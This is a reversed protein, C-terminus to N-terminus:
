AEGGTAPLEEAKSVPEVPALARVIEEALDLGRLRGAGFHDGEGLRHTLVDYRKDLAACADDIARRYGAAEAAEARATLEAVQAELSATYTDSEDSWTSGPGDYQEAAAAAAEAEERTACSGMYDVAGGEVEWLWEGDVQRLTTSM